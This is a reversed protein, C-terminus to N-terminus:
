QVKQEGECLQLAVSLSGFCLKEFCFWCRSERGTKERGKHHFSKKTSHNNMQIYLFDGPVHIVKAIQICHFLM